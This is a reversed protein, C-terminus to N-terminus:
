CLGSGSESSLFLFNSCSFFHALLSRLSNTITHYTVDHSIKLPIASWSDTPFLTRAFLSDPFWLIAFCRPTAFLFLVYLSISVFCLHCYFFFMSQFLHIAEWANSSPSKEILLLFCRPSTRSKLHFWRLCSSFFQFYSALFIFFIFVYFM